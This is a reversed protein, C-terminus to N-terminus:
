SVIYYVHIGICSVVVLTILPSAVELFSRSGGYLGHIYCPGLFAMGMFIDSVTRYSM